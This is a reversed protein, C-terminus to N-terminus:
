KVRKLIPIVKPTNEDMKITIDVPTTKMRQYYQKVQKQNEDWAPYRESPLKSLIAGAQMILNHAHKFEITEKKDILFLRELKNNFTLLIIALVFIIFSFEM